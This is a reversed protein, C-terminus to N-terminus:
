THGASRKKKWYQYGMYLFAPPIFLLGESGAPIWTPNVVVTILSVCLVYGLAEWIFVGRWLVLGAMIGMSSLIARTGEHLFAPAPVGVIGTSLFILFLGFFARIAAWLRRHRLYM